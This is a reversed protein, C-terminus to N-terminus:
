GNTPPAFAKELVDVQDLMQGVYKTALKMDRDSVSRDLKELTAAFNTAADKAPVKDRIAAWQEDAFNLAEVMDSWRAPKAKLDASIRFGSYDLLSVQVPVAMEDKIASVATRYAENSAIALDAATGGQQADQIAAIDSKLADSDPAQLSAVAKNGADVAGKVLASVKTKDADFANETLQEFAESAVKLDPNAVAAQPSATPTPTPAPASTSQGCAGLALAAALPIYAQRAM